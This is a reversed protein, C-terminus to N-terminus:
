PGSQIVDPGALMWTNTDVKMITYIGNDGNDSFAWWGSSGTSGSGYIIVDGQGNNNVFVSMGGFEVIVVTVTFGIPLAVDSNLPIEITSNFSNPNDNFYIFKGNMGASLRIYNDGHDVAHRAIGSSKLESGDAFVIKSDGGLEYTFPNVNGVADATVSINDNNKTFVTEDSEVIAQSSSADIVVANSTNDVWSALTDNSYIWRDYTGLGAGSTNIKAAIAVYDDDNADYVQGAFYANDGVVSMLDTGYDSFANMNFDEANGLKRAWILSGDVKSLKMFSWLDSEVDNYYYDGGIIIDGNSDLGMTPDNDWHDSDVQLVQWVLTGTSTLKTVITEGNDNLACVYVNGTGDAIISSADDGSGETDEVYKVWTIDGTAYDFKFVALETNNNNFSGHAYVSNDFSDYTVSNFIQYGNGGYTHQWSPTIIFAQSDLSRRLDWTGTFTIGDPIIASLVPWGSSESVTTTYDIQWIGPFTEAWENTFTFTRSTPESGSNISVILVDGTGLALMADRAATDSWLAYTLMLSGSTGNAFDTYLGANTSYEVGNTFAPGSPAGRYDVGTPMILRTTAAVQESVRGDTFNIYPGAGYDGLTLTIDNGNNDISYQQGEELVIGQPVDFRWTAGTNQVESLTAWGNIGPGSMRWGNQVVSFGPYDAILFSASNNSATWTTGSLSITDVGGMQSGLVKVVDGSAYGQGSFNIGYNWIQGPGVGNSQGEPVYYLEVAMVSKNIIISNINGTGDALSDEVSISAEFIGGGVDTWPTLQSVVYDGPAITFQYTGNQALLHTQATGNVWTADLRLTWTTGTGGVVLQLQGDAYDTNGGEYYQPGGTGTVTTVALNSFRNIASPQTWSNADEPDIQVEIMDGWPLLPTAFVSNAVTLIGDNSGWPQRNPTVDNIPVNEGYTQGVLIHGDTDDIALDTIERWSTTNTTYNSSSVFTGDSQALTITGIQSDENNDSFTVGVVLNDGSTVMTRPRVNYGNFDDIGVKWRVTGDSNFAWIYEPGNSNSGGAFLGGDVDGVVTHFYQHVDDGGDSDVIFLRGGVSEGLEINTNALINGNAKTLEPALSGASTQVSGDPFTLSGDTGFTWSHRDYPETSAETGIVAPGDKSLKFYKNDDGIYLDFKESDTTKFHLHEWTDGGTVKFYQPGLDPGEEASVSGDTFTPGPSLGLGEGGNYGEVVNNSFTVDGTDGSGGGVNEIEGARMKPRFPITIWDEPVIPRDSASASGVYAYMDNDKATNAQQQTYTGQGLVDLDDIYGDDDTYAEFNAFTTVNGDAIITAYLAADIVVVESNPTFQYTQDDTDEVEEVRFNAAQTVGPIVVGNTGAQLSVGGLKLDSGQIEFAKKAM